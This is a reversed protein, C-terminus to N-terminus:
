ALPRINGSQTMRELKCRPISIQEGAQQQFHNLVMLTGVVTTRLDHSIAKLFTQQLILEERTRQVEALTRQKTAVQDQEHADSSQWFLEDKDVDKLYPILTQWQERVEALLGGMLLNRNKDEPKLTANQQDKEWNLRAAELRQSLRRLERSEECWSALRKWGQILAEHALDITDREAVLLRGKILSELVLEIKQQAEATEGAVKVLSSRPQRQRTDKEAEGPRVLRLLM